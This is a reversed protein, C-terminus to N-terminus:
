KSEKYITDVLKNFDKITTYQLDLCDVVNIYENYKVGMGMLVNTVIVNIQNENEVVENWKKMESITAGQCGIRGKMTDLLYNLESAFKINNKLMEKIKNETTMTINKM